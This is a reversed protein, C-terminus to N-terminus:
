FEVGISGLLQDKYVVGAKFNKTFKYSYQGGKLIKFDTFLDISHKTEHSTETLSKNLHSEQLFTTVEDTETAIQGNPLIIPITRKTTIGSKKIDTKEIYQIQPKPQPMFKYTLLAGLIFAIVILANNINQNM